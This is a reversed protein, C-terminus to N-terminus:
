AGVEARAIQVEGLHLHQAILEDWLPDPAFLARFDADSEAKARRQLEARLVLPGRLDAMFLPGGRWNPCLGARLAAFDILEARPAVGCRLLRAGLNAWVAMLAHALDQAGKPCPPLDRGTQAAVGYAALATEADARAIGKEEAWDFIDDMASRLATEITQLTAEEGKQAAATGRQRVVFAHCLARSIPGAQVEEFATFEQVLAAEEGLLLAAEVIDVMRHQALWPGKQPPLSQRMEAIAAMDEPLHQPYARRAPAANQAGAAMKQLLACATEVEDGQACIRDILELDLAEEAPKAAGTLLMDLAAKAGILRTLRYGGGGAPLLGLRLDPYGFSARLSGVRAHAALALDLGTSLCAGGV